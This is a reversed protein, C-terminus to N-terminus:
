LLKSSHRAVYKLYLCVMALNIVKTFESSCDSRSINKYRDIRKLLAFVKTFSELAISSLRTWRPFILTLQDWRPVIVASKEVGEELEASRPAEQKGPWSYYGDLKIVRVSFGRVWTRTQERFIENRNAHYTTSMGRILFSFARGRSDRATARNEKAM